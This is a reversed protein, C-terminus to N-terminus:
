TPALSYKPSPIATLVRVIFPGKRSDLDLIMASKTLFSKSELVISSGFIMLRNFGNM